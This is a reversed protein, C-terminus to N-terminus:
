RSQGKLIIKSPGKCPSNKDDARRVIGCVRCSEWSRGGLDPRFWVHTHLGGKDTPKPSDTM